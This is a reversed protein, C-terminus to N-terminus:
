RAPAAAPTTPAPRASAPAGAPPTPAAAARVDPAPAATTAAPSGSASDTSPAPTGDAPAQAAQRRRRGGQGQGDKAGPTASAAPAPRDPATQVRAGDKLRDGGETVVQEGAELGSTIAINEVSAIGTKVPRLAVTKDEKVVYVFDGNPGHRLATVPVVVASRITRLLIRANVFQNPYLAHTTNQFRAKAKITGTTTDILNDITLFVGTDLQRSRTRDFATVPLQAGAALRAQLEPLRDQPVSFSVDIPEIQTIVAIGSTSSGSNVYNGADVPRLGVRGSVPAVIRSWALNLKATNENARDITVTGELQQVLAAQTDVVQRAISDQQLLNQYRKLTVRAADLSAEDRKRAGQAQQLAIQFPQPDIQALVDGRKVLQGETYLVATLVGSVQPQVTVNALPTVTGLADVTVPIDAEQATAVGVTSAGAGRGGGGPGGPGGPGGGPRGAGGPGGPGGQAGAVPAPSKARQVLYWAGAGLAILLLLAVVSGVWRRRGRGSPIATPSAEPPADPFNPAM